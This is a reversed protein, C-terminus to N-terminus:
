LRFALPLLEDPRFAGVGDVQITAGPDLYEVIIQRCAGCPMRGGPPGPAADLCTVALAVLDSAGAALAAFIAVREACITLGYSDSEVNCGPYVRGSADRVAAGVRFRSHRARARLGATRAAVLLDDSSPNTTTPM